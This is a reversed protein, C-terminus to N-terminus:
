GFFLTFPRTSDPLALLVSASEAPINEAVPPGLSDSRFAQYIEYYTVGSAAPTWGLRVGAKGSAPDKVQLSVAELRIEPLPPSKGPNNVCSFLGLCAALGLFRPHM